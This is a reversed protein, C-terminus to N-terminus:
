CIERWRFRRRFKVNDQSELFDFKVGETVCDLVWGDDAIEKWNAKFDLIRAGM